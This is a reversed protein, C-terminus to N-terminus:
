RSHHNKPDDDIREEWAVIEHILDYHETAGTEEPHRDTYADENGKTGTENDLKNGIRVEGTIPINDTLHPDQSVQFILKTNWMAFTTPSAVAGEFLRRHEMVRM